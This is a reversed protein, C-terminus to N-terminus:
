EGSLEISFSQFMLIFVPLQGISTLRSLPLASCSVSNYPFFRRKTVMMSLNSVLVLSILKRPHLNTSSRPLEGFIVSNLYEFSHTHLYYLIHILCMCYSYSGQILGDIGIALGSPSYPQFKPFLSIKVNQSVKTEIVISQFWGFDM